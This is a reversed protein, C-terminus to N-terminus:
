GWIEIHSIGHGELNSDSTKATVLFEIIVNNICIGFSFFLLVAPACHQSFARPSLILFPPPCAGGNNTLLLGSGTIISELGKKSGEGM